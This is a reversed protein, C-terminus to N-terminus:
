ADLMKRAELKRQEWASDVGAGACTVCVKPTQRLYGAHSETYYLSSKPESKTVIAAAVCMHM